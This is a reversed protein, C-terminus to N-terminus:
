GAMRPTAPKDHLALGSTIASLSYSLSTVEPINHVAIALAMVPGIGTFSSFAVQLLVVQIVVDHFSIDLCFPM